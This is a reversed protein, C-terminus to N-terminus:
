DLKKRNLFAVTALNIAVGLLFLALLRPWFASIGAGKLLIARFIVLWHSIPFLNSLTRMLPPMTEVPFAYGSFVMEIMIFMFVLLLAQLQTSAIASVMLGLGLVVLLYFFALALLLPWSGKMPLGFGVLAVSLMLMFVSYGMLVAPLAKGIVLELSSLPTVLLQELTGLERERAIGLSALMLTMAELMFGLESPLMFNSEKLEENFWIRVQSRILPATLGGQSALQPVFRQGYSAVAGEASDVAKRAAMPEAGDILIQVQPPASQQSRLDAAFGRPIIVAAAVKGQEILPPAQREDVLYHAVDFTETNVMAEVLGRSEQSRDLDVIATPLHQIPLMTSYAIATMESLPGLFFFVLLLKNHWLQILEKLVMHWIRLLM